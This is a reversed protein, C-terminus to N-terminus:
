VYKLAEKYWEKLLQRKDNGERVKLIKDLARLSAESYKIIRALIFDLEEM